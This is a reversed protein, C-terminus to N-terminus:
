CGGVEMVATRVVPFGPSVITGVDNSLLIGLQLLAALLVERQSGALGVDVDKLVTPKTVGNLVKYVASCVV